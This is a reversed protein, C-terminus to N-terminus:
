NSSLASSLANNGACSPFQRRLQHKHSSSGTSRPDHGHSTTSTHAHVHVHLSPAQDDHTAPAPAHRPGHGYGLGAPQATTSFPVSQPNGCENGPPWESVFSVPKLSIKRITLLNIFLEYYTYIYVLRDNTTDNAKATVQCKVNPFMPGHRLAVFLHSCASLCLRMTPKPRKM